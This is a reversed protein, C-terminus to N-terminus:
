LYLIFSRSISLKPTFNAVLIFWWCPIKFAFCYLLYYHIFDQVLEWLAFIYSLSIGAIADTQKFVPYIRDATSLIPSMLIQSPHGNEQPELSAWSRCSHYNQGYLYVITWNKLACKHIAWRSHVGLTEKRPDIDVDCSYKLAHHIM